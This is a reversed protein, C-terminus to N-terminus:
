MSGARFPPTCPLLVIDAHAGILATHLHAVAEKGLDRLHELDGISCICSQSNLFSYMKVDLCALSPCVTSNGGAAAGLSDPPTCPSM